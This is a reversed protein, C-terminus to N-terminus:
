PSIHVTFAVDGCMHGIKPTHGHRLDKAKVHEVHPIYGYGVSMVTNSSM